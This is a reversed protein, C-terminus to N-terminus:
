PTRHKHFLALPLCPLRPTRGHSARRRRHQLAAARLEAAGGVTLGLAESSRRGFLGRGIGHGVSSALSALSRTELAPGLAPSLPQVQALRAARPLSALVVAGIEVLGAEEVESGADVAAM